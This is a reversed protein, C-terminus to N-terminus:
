LPPGVHAPNDNSCYGTDHALRHIRDASGHPCQSASVREMSCGCPLVLHCVPCNFGALHATVATELNLRKIGWGQIGIRRLLDHQARVIDDTRGATSMTGVHGDRHVLALVTEPAGM